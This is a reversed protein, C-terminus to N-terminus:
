NVKEGLHVRSPPPSAISSVSSRFERNNFRNKSTFGSNNYDATSFPRFQEPNSPSVISRLYNRNDSGRMGTPSNQASRFNLSNENLFMNNGGFQSNSGGFQANNNYYLNDNRQNSEFRNNYYPSNFGELTTKTPLTINSPISAFANQPTKQSAAGKTFDQVFTNQNM